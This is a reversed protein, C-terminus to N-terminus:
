PTISRAIQLLTEAARDWTHTAARKLGAARMEGAKQPTDLLYAVAQAIAEPELPSAYLAAAGCIEHLVPIDAAVVPCGCAMAEVPPLGFGEYLSPFVFCAAAGYLARLEQDSVRGIYTAPRPLAQMGSANFVATNVSGSIVLPIGRLALVRALADLRALNKHPALNGVALVFRQPVLGHRTLITPDPPIRTIHEAGESMVAIREPPIRLYRSLEGRSFESVTVLQARTHRLLTHLLRYWLRFKWSYSGPQSFVGADHIIVIRRGGWLPATNGLNLLVGDRAAWPLELQEWVQGHCRGVMRRPLDPADDGSMAAAPTLMVPLPESGARTVRALAHSIELAFRQVGSLPQTLFRGNVYIRPDNVQASWM